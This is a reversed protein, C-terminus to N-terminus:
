RAYESHKVSVTLVTLGFGIQNVLDALNYVVALKPGEVGGGFRAIFFVIPYIAWGITVIMRLWFYGRRTVEDGIDLNIDSMRGFFFEGLVYLWGVLGILFGLTPYMLSSEGMYRALVMLVSVILLRWFLGIPAKATANIFFYVAAVQLPATLMWATYRYVITIQGNDLWVSSALLYFMTGVFTAIGSLALPLKWRRTVWGTGMVILVTAAAMAMLLLFFSGSAVDTAQILKSSM